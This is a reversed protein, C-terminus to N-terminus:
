RARVVLRRARSSVPAKYPWGLERLVKVRFRYSVNSTYFRAFRYRMRYRGDPGTYFAQRVTHWQSGDKVQLEILKGGAPVRAALHAVRGRFAVQRGERVRSRSLHLTARTKVRLRGAGARDPLYRTTGEYTASVTRSPGAPLRRGWLGDRDTSVTRVRRDILAGAGFRETVTVRQGALPRGAADRLRGAVRSIHGYGVTLRSAGGPALHASLRARSKLPFALVMPRGDARRTTRSINGALDGARAMFEYKGPPNGASDVRARMADGHLRTDLHRWSTQGRPRYLIRGSKVGSTPDLVAATILEPDDAAQSSAFSIRPPTNDIRVRHEDCTRNGAFDTACVVLANAGDQFPQYATNATQDSFIEAGCARFRAARITGPIVDCSGDQTDLRRGNVSATLRKVGSGADSARARLDRSGRLWSRGLLTGDLATFSPDAYDAVRLRVQRVWTKAADSRRCGAARRCSLSAVFQRSGHGAANWGYHRYATAGNGGAAVRAVENLRQDAMWLRAAHSNDRRLKAKLDVAVIELHSSGTRWRIRGFSGHRARGTSIVKMAHDNAPDGCFSRAAYPSADELVADAHSRNLPDCQVVAYTRGAAGAMEPSLAAFLLLAGTFCGFIPVRAPRV